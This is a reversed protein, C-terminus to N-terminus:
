ELFKWEKIIKKVDFDMARELSKQSLFQALKRDTLVKVIAQKLIEESKTLSKEAEYKENDFPPTLIGYDGREIGKTVKDIATRPAIIERPGSKCDVSIIPLGCAMAELTTCSLGERLSPLVFAKSEAFFKFPNNQWGLFYVDKEVGLDIAMKKLEAELKGSGLIVLRADSVEDKVGKFARILQKHNKENTLRGANIIVSGKFVGQYESEIPEISLNKIENVDLPNYIVKVKEEKIKFNDILDQANVKSVCIIKFARNFFLKVLVKYIRRPSSSFFTDARLISKAGSFINIINAPSGFSIVYDPKESKVIKRFRLLAVFFYYIKFFLPNSLPINLFVTRGKYPYSIQNKFLVIMREISDPLNLSLQSVVREGGGSSLTPILFIIKKKIM